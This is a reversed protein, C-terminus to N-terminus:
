LWLERRSKQTYIIFLSTDVREAFKLINHDSHWIYSVWTCVCLIFLLVFCYFGSISKVKIYFRFYQLVCSCIPLTAALASSTMPYSHSLTCLKLDANLFFLSFIWCTDEERHLMVSVWWKDTVSGLKSKIEESCYMFEHAMVYLFFFFRNLFLESSQQISLHSM